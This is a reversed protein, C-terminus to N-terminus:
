SIKNLLTLLTKQEKTNLPALTEASIKLGAKKLESVMAAGRASLSIVARRKDVLDPESVILGKVKLRDVVGKITAVDMAALRGLQNQSVKGVEALRIITSFQTATLNGNTHTQFITAHRQSAVRLLFGVQNELAYDIEETNLPDDPM